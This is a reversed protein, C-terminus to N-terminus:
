LPGVLHQDDVGAPHDLAARVVLQDVGVADVRPQVGTPPARGRPLGLGGVSLPTSIPQRNTGYRCRSRCVRGNRSRSLSHASRTLQGVLGFVATLPGNRAPQGTSPPCPPPRPEGLTRVM